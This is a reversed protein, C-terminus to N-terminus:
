APGQPRTGPAVAGTRIADEPAVGERLKDYDLESGRLSHPILYVVLMVLAAAIVLLRRGGERRPRALALGACAVGWALWMVLVKNDTLDHGFPWGTWFAGFAYRQVIPGLVLGGLTMLGLTWFALRRMAAPDLLAALATRVGFLMALFMVAIHPVLVGAPVPDKYRLVVTEDAPGPLHITREGERVVIRYEVKGAAPQIPLEGILSEGERVLPTEQFPEETPYRRALLTAEVAISRAPIKVRAPESTDGSRVLRVTTSRSESPYTVRMPHTPGTMRQYVAAGAMLLFALIWLVGRIRRSPRPATSM